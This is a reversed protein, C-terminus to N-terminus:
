SGEKETKKQVKKFESEILMLIELDERGADMMSLITGSDVLGNLERLTTYLQMIRNGEGCLQPILCERGELECDPVVGEM